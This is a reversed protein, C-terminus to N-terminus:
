QRLDEYTLFIENKERNKKIKERFNRFNAVKQSKSKLFKIFKRNKQFTQNKKLCFSKKISSKEM